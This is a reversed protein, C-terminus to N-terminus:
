ALGYFHLFVFRFTSNLFFFTAWKVPMTLKRIICVSIWNYKIVHSFANPFRLTKVALRYTKRESIGDCLESNSSTAFVIKTAYM